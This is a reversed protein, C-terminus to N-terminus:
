LGFHKLVSDLSLRGSGTLIGAGAIAGIMWWKAKWITREVDSVRSETKKLLETNSALAEIQGDMREELRAIREGHDGRVADM